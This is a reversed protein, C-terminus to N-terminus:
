WMVLPCPSRTVVAHLATIEAGALSPPQHGISPFELGPLLRPPSASSPLPFSARRRPGGGGGRPPGGAEIERRGLHDPFHCPHLGCPPCCSVQLTSDQGGPTAGQFGLLSHPLRFNLTLTPHHRRGRVHLSPRGLKQHQQHGQHIM